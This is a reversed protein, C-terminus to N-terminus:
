LIFIICLKENTLPNAKIIAFITGFVNDEAWNGGVKKLDIHRFPFFFVGRQANKLCGGRYRWRKGKFVDYLHHLISNLPMHFPPRNTDIGALVSWLLGSCVLVSWFLGQPLCQTIHLSINIVVHRRQHCTPPSPCPFWYSSRTLLM